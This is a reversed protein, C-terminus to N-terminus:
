PMLSQGTGRCLQQKLSTHTRHRFCRLLQSFRRCECGVGHLKGTVLVLTLQCCSTKEQWKHMIFLFFFNQM